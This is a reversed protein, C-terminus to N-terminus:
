QGYGGWLRLWGMGRFGLCSEEDSRMMGDNRMTGRMGHNRMMEWWELSAMTGWWKEHNREDWWEFSTRIGWWKEDDLSAMMGWWKEDNRERWWREDSRRMGIIILCSPIMLFSSSDHSTILSSPMHDHRERSLFLSQMDRHSSTMMGKALDGRMVKWWKLSSSFHHFRSFHHPILLFSSSWKEDNSHYRIANFLLDRKCFITEKIPSKQLLSRHKQGILM